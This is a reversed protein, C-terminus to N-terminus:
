PASAMHSTSVSPVRTFSYLVKTESPPELARSKSPTRCIAPAEPFPRLLASGAVGPAIHALCSSFACAPAHGRQRQGARSALPREAFSAHLSPSRPRSVITAHRCRLGALDRDLILELAADALRGVQQAAHQGADLDHRQQHSADRGAGGRGAHFGVHPARSAPQRMGKNDHGARQRQERQEDQRHGHGDLQEDPALEPPQPLRHGGADQGGGQGRYDIVQEGPGGGAPEVVRDDHGMRAGAVGRREVRVQRAQDGVGGHNAQHTPRVPPVGQPRRDGHIRDHVHSRQM